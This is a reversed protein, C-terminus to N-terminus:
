VVAEIHTFKIMVHEHECTCREPRVTPGDWTGPDADIYVDTTDPDPNVPDIARIHRVVGTVVVDTAGFKMQMGSLSSLPQNVKFWRARIRSGKVVIQDSM